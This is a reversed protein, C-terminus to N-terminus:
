YINLLAPDNFIEVCEPDTFDSHLVNWVRAGSRLLPNYLKPRLFSFTIPSSADLVSGYLVAKNKLTVSVTDGPLICDSGLVNVIKERPLVFSFDRRSIVSTTSSTTSVTKSAAVASALARSFSLPSYYGPRALSLGPYNLGYGAFPLPKTLHDTTSVIANSSASASVIPAVPAVASVVNPYLGSPHQQIAAVNSASSSTVTSASATTMVSSEVAPESVVVPAPGCDVVEPITEVVPAPAVSETVSVSKSSSESVATTESVVSSPVYPIASVTHPLMTPAAYSVVPKTAVVPQAEVVTSSTSSSTSSSVTESALTGALDPSGVISSTKAMGSASSMVETATPYVEPSIVSGLHGFSSIIPGGVVPSVVLNPAGVISASAKSYAFPAVAKTVVPYVSTVPNIISYGVLPNIVPSEIVPAVEPAVEVISSARSESSVSTRVTETEIPVPEVANVVSGLGFPSIVPSLGDIIPAVVPAFNEFIPNVVPSVDVPSFKTTITDLYPVFNNLFPITSLFSTMTSRTSESFFTKVGSRFLDHIGSAFYGDHVGQFTAIVERLSHHYEPTYLEDDHLTVPSLIPKAIINELHPLALGLVREVLHLKGFHHLIRLFHLGLNHHLLFNEAIKFLHERIMNHVFHVVKFFVTNIRHMARFISKFPVVDRIIEPLILLHHPEKIVAEFLQPIHRHFSGLVDGEFEETIMPGLTLESKLNRMGVRIYHPVKRVECLLEHTLLGSNHSHGYDFAEVMCSHSDLQELPIEELFNAGLINGVVGPHLHRKLLKNFDDPDTSNEQLEQQLEETSDEKKNYLARIVDHVNKPVAEDQTNEETDNHEKHASRKEQEEIKEFKLSAEQIEEAVARRDHVKELESLDELEAANNETLSLDFRESQRKERLLTRPLELNFNKEFNKAFNLDKKIYAASSLSLSGLFAIAFVVLIKQTYEMIHGSPFEIIEIADLHKM